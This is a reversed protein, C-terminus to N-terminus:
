FNIKNHNNNQINKEKKNNIIKISIHNKRKFASM